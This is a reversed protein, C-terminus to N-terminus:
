SSFCLSIPFTQWSGRTLSGAFSQKGTKLHPHINDFYAKTLKGAVKLSPLRLSGDTRAAPVGTEAGSIVSHQSGSGVSNTAPLGMTASVIRSFSVASSAGFYHPDRGTASLCLLAVESSLVDIQQDEPHISSARRARSMSSAGATIEQSPNQGCAIDNSGNTPSLPLTYTEDPGSAMHDLAVDPRVQQLLSELYAVRAELSKLYNRPRHLGTAPDEVLCDASADARDM